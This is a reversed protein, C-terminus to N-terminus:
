EIGARRESPSERNGPVEYREAGMKSFSGAPSAKIHLHSEPFTAPAAFGVLRLEQGLRTACLCFPAIIQRGGEM